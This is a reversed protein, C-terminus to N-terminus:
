KHKPPSSAEFTFCAKTKFLTMPINIDLTWEINDGGSNRHDDGSNDSNKIMVIIM